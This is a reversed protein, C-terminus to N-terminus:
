FAVKDDGSCGLFLPEVENYRGQSFYLLALNNISLKVNPHEQGLIVKIMELFELYLPESENYQEQSLYLLALNNISTAVDRHEQGLYRKQTGLVTQRM